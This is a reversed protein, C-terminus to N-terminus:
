PFSQFVIRVKQPTGAAAKEIIRKLKTAVEPEAALDYVLVVEDVKTQQGFL